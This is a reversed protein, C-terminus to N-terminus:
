EYGFYTSFQYNVGRRIKCKSKIQLKAVCHDVRFTETGFKRKLNTEVLDLARMICVQESKLFYLFMLYEKYRLGGEADMGENQDEATGLKLLGSLQLQWTASTKVLAVRKGELLARVDMVAEGFAWAVLIAQKVLGGLVPLAIAASLTLALTEAEAQKITDTLLYLYNAGSRMLLLKKVVGKLNEQDSEKGELIYEMEYSLMNEKKQDVANGFHELLYQCFFLSSVKGQADSKTPFKGIGKQLSRHSPLGGLSIQKQSLQEPDSVVVNLLNSKKINSINELPNNESPLESEGEQLKADLEESIDSGEQEYSGSQKNQEEWTACKGALEEVLDIGMKNKMYRVAQEKFPQGNDDTLFQIKEPEQTMGAAEYFELRNVINEFSFKGTEYGAEIGFIDYETLLERHYEAFVSQLARDMDARRYNKATQVSASEIVAGILGILLVFVLSIFATIEGRKM